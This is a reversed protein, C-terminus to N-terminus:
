YLTQKVMQRQNRSSQERLCRIARSTADTVTKFHGVGRCTIAKSHAPARARRQNTNLSERDILIQENLEALQLFAENTEEERSEAFKELYQKSNALEETMATLPNVNDQAESLQSQSEALAANVNEMESEIREIKQNKEKLRNNYENETSTLLQQLDGYESKLKQHEELLSTHTEKNQELQLRIDNNESQLKSNDNQFKIHENELDDIEQDLAEIEARHMSTLDDIKEQLKTEFMVKSQEIGHQEGETFRRESILIMEEQQESIKARQEDLEKTQNEIM